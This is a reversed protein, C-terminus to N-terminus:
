REPLFAPNTGALERYVRVAEETPAVAEVRRGVEGYCIGLNNLAMALDPLFAPNTGALARFVRVAEETPAVAEVRRGVEGYRIGLNNLAGALGPLFAPNTGALERRLRVAEETPAVAEARRGWEGFQDAIALAAMAVDPLLAAHDAALARLADLAPPGATAVHRHAYRWLYAPATPDLGAALLTAYRTLLATAVPLAAPDFPHDHNPQYPPHLHDALTQHALRYVAVGAEGDQVVYRGLQDLLWTLDDRDCPPADAPEAAEAPLVNAVTLWEEEPLGAGFAWTLATLLRRALAVGASGSWRPPGAPEAVRALDTDFAAETSASIRSTWDPASTDVPEARLQDTVLRALLFPRDGTMSAGAAVHEAVLGADMFESVGALRTMLYRRLDDRGRVLVAPDDLDITEAPALTAVLPLKGDGRSMERTSVIVVAHRSLRSILDEAIDFAQDRAEDLGDIVVVPPAAGREVMRQVQGVLEAANRPEEQVPLVGRHVLQGALTEAARDATLGRAHVHAHVAREGPDAHEWRPSQTLLRSREDPDAMSVVRGVIASKGTGASGTVVYVGPRGVGVWSVVQDMEDTRGTFWSRDSDVGGRAALLLHEVVREPAGPRFLPNAFMPLANGRGQFDPTHARGDWEKVVADCVDDGRVYRNYASWRVRLDPTDPGDALVRRLVWGFAGDRATEEPLCSALVGVWMPGGDPPQERLIAAALDTGAVAEGAYCTDVLFLLQNAGSAACPVVVQQGFALGGAPGPRSDRALVWLAGASIRGGGSWLVVLPGGDPLSGPVGDLHESVTSKGPDCLPEGDFEEGLLKRLARVDTIAHPLPAHGHDYESVGVGVFRGKPM